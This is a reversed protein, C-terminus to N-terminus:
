SRALVKCLDIYMGSCAQVRGEHNTWRVLEVLLEPSVKKKKKKKKNLCWLGRHVEVEENSAEWCFMNKIPHPPTTLWMGLGL